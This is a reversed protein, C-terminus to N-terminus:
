FLNMFTMKLGSLAHLVHDEIYRMLSNILLSLLSLVIAIICLRISQESVDITVSVNVLM